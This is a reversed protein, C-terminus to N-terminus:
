GPGPSAPEDPGAEANAKDAKRRLYAAVRILADLGGPKQTASDVWTVLDPRGHGAFGARMVDPLAAGIEAPDDPLATDPFEGAISSLEQWIEAGAKELRYRGVNEALDEDDLGLRALFGIAAKVVDDTMEDVISRDRRENLAFIEAEFRGIDDEALGLRKGLGHRDAWAALLMLRQVPWPAKAAEDIARQHLLSILASRGVAVDGHGLDRILNCMIAWDDGGFLGPPMAYGSSPHFRVEYVCRDNEEDYALLAEDRATGGVAGLANIHSDRVCVPRLLDVLTDKYAQRIAAGREPSVGSDGYRLASADQGPALAAYPTFSFGPATLAPSVNVFVGDDPSTLMWGASLDKYDDGGLHPLGFRRHMYAFLTAWGAKRMPTENLVEDDLASGKWIRRCPYLTGNWAIATTATFDTRPLQLKAMPM